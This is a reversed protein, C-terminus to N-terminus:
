NSDEGRVRRNWIRSAEKGNKASVEVMHDNKVCQIRTIDGMKLVFPNGGCLPCQKITM